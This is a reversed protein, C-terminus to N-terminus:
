PKRTIRDIAEQCKEVEARVISSDGMKLLMELRREYDKISKTEGEEM